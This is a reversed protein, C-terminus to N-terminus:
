YVAEALMSVGGMSYPMRETRRGMEIDFRRILEQTFWVGENAVCVANIESDCVLCSGEDNFFDNFSDFDQFNLSAAAFSALDFAMKEVVREGAGKHRFEDKVYIAYLTIAVSVSDESEFVALGAAAWGVIDDEHYLAWVRHENDDEGVLAKIHLDATYSSVVESSARIMSGIAQVDGCWNNSILEVRFTM